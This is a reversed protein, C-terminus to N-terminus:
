RQQPVADIGAEKRQAATIPAPADTLPDIGGRQALQTLDQTFAKLPDGAPAGGGRKRGGMEEEDEDDDGAPLSSPDSDGGFYPPQSRSVGHALYSVVDLRSLLEIRRRAAAASIGLKRTSVAFYEQLVQLSLVGTRTSMVERILDRARERKPGASRDDAYVLVNSDVFSRATM